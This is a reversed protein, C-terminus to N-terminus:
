ACYRRLVGDLDSLDFPKALVGDAGVDRAWAAADRTATMVVLPARPGPRERYRRVFEWGDVHPM